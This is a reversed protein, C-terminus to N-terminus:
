PQGLPITIVPDQESGVARAGSSAAVSRAADKFVLKVVSELVAFPRRPIWVIDGPQLLVNSEKGTLIARLNVVAASPKELTGRVIVIKDLYAEPAPGKGQAICDVLTLSDKYGVAQPIAVAGLLLVTSAAASPLYILDNNRLYINQSTDGDKVLRSFDVPLIDGDRIVVSNSLDALEQTTGSFRSTFLGGSASIAELLTTPQRLPFIGPKFVRGLIWYRRSRVEVLSINVLPNAYDRKLAETVQKSFEAQTLGEARIGGALNYYVMGDPMVFTRALTGPVEAIEIELVDGPGLIYPEAPPTLLKPDLARKISVNTFTLNKVTQGTGRADFGSPPIEQQCAAGLLGLCLAAFRCPISRPPAIM